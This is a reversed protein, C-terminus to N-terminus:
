SDADYKDRTLTGKAGYKDVLIGEFRKSNKMRFM